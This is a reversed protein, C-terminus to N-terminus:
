SRGLNFFAVSFILIKQSKQSKRYLNGERLKYTTLITPGYSCIFTVIKLFIYGLMSTFYAMLERKFIAKM